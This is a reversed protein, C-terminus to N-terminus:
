SISPMSVLKNFLLPLLVAAFAVIMLASTLDSFSAGASAKTATLGSASCIM